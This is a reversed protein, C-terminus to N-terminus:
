KVLVKKGNIIYLGHAPKSVKRGSLDYAAKPANDSTATAANIATTNGNFDVVMKVASGADLVLYSKFLKITRDTDSLRYFNAERNNSSDFGLVYANTSADIASGTSPQLKNNEVTPLTETTRATPIFTGAETAKIIVGESAPIVQGDIPSLTATEGVQSVKYATLGEPLVAPFPSSYSGLYITEGESTTMQTPTFANEQDAEEFFYACTNGGTTYYNVASAGNHFPNDASTQSTNLMLYHLDSTSNTAEGTMAGQLLLLGLYSTSMSTVSSIDCNDNTGSFNFPLLSFQCCAAYDTLVGNGQGGITKGESRFTLYKGTSNTFIFKDGVQHAYFIAKRQKTTTFHLKGNDNTYLYYTAASTAVGKNIPRIYYAKGDTPLTMNAKLLATQLATYKAENTTASTVAAYAAATPYGIKGANNGVASIFADVKAMEATEMTTVVNQATADSYSTNTTATFNVRAGYDNYSSSNTFGMGASFSNSFALFWSPSTASSIKFNATVNSETLAAKEVKFCNNLSLNSADTLTVVKTSSNYSMFKGAGVNYFYYSPTTTYITSPILVWQHNEDTADISTSKACNTATSGTTTIGGRANSITYTTTTSLESLEGIQATATAAFSTAAVATLLLHKITM